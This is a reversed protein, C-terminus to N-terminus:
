RPLGPPLMTTDFAGDESLTVVMNTCARVASAGWLGGTRMAPGPQRGPWRTTPANHVLIQCRQGRRIRALKDASRTFVALAQRDTIRDVLTAASDVNDVRLVTLNPGPAVLDLPATAESLELLSPSVYSGPRGKDLVGARLHVRAGAERLRGIQALFDSVADDDILPGFFVDGDSSHGVGINSLLRLLRDLLADGVRREVLVWRTNTCRQGGGLCAGIVIQYAAQDLNADALVLAAPEATTLARLRTTPQPTLMQRLATATKRAGSLLVVDCDGGALRAGCRDDGQVLNYVGRPLDAEDLLEAYLQGVAPTQPAPKCVVACGAAIAGVTDAHMLLAPQSAAALIVVVGASLQAVESGSFGGGRSALGDLGGRLLGEVEAHMARIEARTEWRPRGTERSITASLEDGRNHLQAQLRRLAAVRAEFSSERWRTAAARAASLAEDAAAVFTPFATVKQEHDGPDRSLLEREPKRRRVFKGNIYDGRPKMKM